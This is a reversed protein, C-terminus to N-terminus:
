KVCDFYLAYARQIDDTIPNGLVFDSYHFEGSAHTDPMECIGAERKIRFGSSTLIKRLEDAHFEHHHEPHIFGGHWNATHIKTIARNPTDLCFHGGDALVRHAERCMRRANELPVHEISQGSWVLDFSGTAFEDLQTMDGYHIVVHGYPATVEVDRYDSHRNEPPLDVMVLEDFKHAYSMRYLPANAGGLDLIRSAPPLLRRIAVLRARHLYQLHHDMAQDIIAGM